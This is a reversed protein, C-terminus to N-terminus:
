VKPATIEARAALLKPKASKYECSGSKCSSHYGSLETDTSRRWNHKTNNESSHLTNYDRINKTTYYKNMSQINKYESPITTIFLSINKWRREIKDHEWFLWANRVTKIPKAVSESRASNGTTVYVSGKICLAPCLHCKFLFMSFLTSSHFYCVMELILVCMFM